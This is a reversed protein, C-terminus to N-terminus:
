LPNSDSFFDNLLVENDGPIWFSRGDLTKSRGALTYYSIAGEPLQKMYAALALMQQTNFSTQIGDRYRLVINMAEVVQGRSKLQGYLNSLFHQVRLIRDIDGGPTDRWQLYLLAQDGNIIQQGKKLEVQRDPDYMDVEVDLEVGGLDNVIAPVPDMKIAFYYNMTARHGIFREIAEASAEPGLNKRSGYAYAHGIKDYDNRVPLFAYTDRPISLIKITNKDLDLRAIVIIDSRYIGITRDVSEDIGLFLLHIIHSSTGIVELYDEEVKAEPHATDWPQIVPRAREKEMEPILATKYDM